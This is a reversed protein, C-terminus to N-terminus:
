MPQSKSSTYCLVQMPQSVLNLLQTFAAWLPYLRTLQASLAQVKPNTMIYSSQKAILFFVSKTLITSCDTHPSARISEVENKSEM